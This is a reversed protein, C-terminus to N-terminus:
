KGDGTGTLDTVTKALAKMGEDTLSVFGDKDLGSFYKRNNQFNAKFNGESYSGREKCGTKVENRDFSFEGSTLGRQLSQLLAIQVQAKSFKTAKLSWIPMYQGDEIHFLKEVQQGTVEHKKMFAKVRMPLTAVDLGTSARGKAHQKTAPTLDDESESVRGKKPKTGEARNLADQLLLELTRVQLLEPVTKVLEIIEQIEAKLAADM